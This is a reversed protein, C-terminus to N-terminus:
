EAEEDAELDYVAVRQKDLCVFGLGRPGSASLAAGALRPGAELDRRKVAAEDQCLDSWAAVGGQVVCSELLSAFPTAEVAARTTLASYDIVELTSLEAAAAANGRLVAMSGPKYFAVGHCRQGEPLAYAGVVIRHPELTLLAVSRDKQGMRSMSPLDVEVAIEVAPLGAHLEGKLRPIRVDLPRRPDLGFVGSSCIHVASALSVHASVHTRVCTAIRDISSRIKDAATGTLATGAVHAGDLGWGQLGM